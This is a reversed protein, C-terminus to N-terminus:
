ASSPDKSAGRLGRKTGGSCSGTPGRCPAWCGSRYSWSLGTGDSKRVVVTAERPGVADSPVALRVDLVGREDADASALRWSRGGQRFEIRMGREPPPQGPQGTDYCDTTFGEGYIRFAEGPAAQSLEPERLGLACAPQSGGVVGSPGEGACGVATLCVVLMLM